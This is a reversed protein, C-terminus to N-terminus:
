FIRSKNLILKKPNDIIKHSKVTAFVRGKLNFLIALGFFIIPNYITSISILSIFSSISLYYGFRNMKTYFSWTRFIYYLILSLYMLLAPLGYLTSFHLYFNIAPYVLFKHNIDGIGLLLNDFLIKFYYDWFIYRGSGEESFLKNVM